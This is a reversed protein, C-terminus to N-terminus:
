LRSRLIFDLSRVSTLPASPTVSPIAKARAGKYAAGMAMRCAAQGSLGQQRWEEAMGGPSRQEM